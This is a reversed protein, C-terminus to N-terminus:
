LLSLCTQKGCDGGCEDDLDVRLALGVRTRLGVGEETDKEVLNVVGGKSVINGSKWLRGRRRKCVEDGSM